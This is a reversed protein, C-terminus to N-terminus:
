IKFIFWPRLVKPPTENTPFYKLFCHIKKPYVEFVVSTIKHVRYSKFHILKAGKHNIKTDPLKKEKKMKQTM